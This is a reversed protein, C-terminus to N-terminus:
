LTYEKMCSMKEGKHPPNDSRMPRRGMMSSLVNPADM